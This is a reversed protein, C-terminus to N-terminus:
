LTMYARKNKITLSEHAWMPMAGVYEGNVMNAVEQRNVVSSAVEEYSNTAWGNHDTPKLAQNSSGCV